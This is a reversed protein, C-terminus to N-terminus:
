CHWDKPTCPTTPPQGAVCVNWMLPPSGCATIGPPPDSEGGSNSAVTPLLVSNGGEPTSATAPTTDGNPALTPEPAATGSGGSDCATIFFFLFGILLLRRM